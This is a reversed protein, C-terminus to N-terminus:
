NIYAYKIWREIEKMADKYTVRPKYLLNTCANQISIQKYNTLIEVASPSIVPKIRTIRYLLVMITGIRLATKKSLNKFNKPKDIMQALERFYEKFTISDDGDTINFIQGFANKNGVALYIADILNQIYTHHFIGNGDEILSFNDNKMSNLVRVVWVPSGPGFVNGPRIITIPVQQQNRKDLLVAESSAKTDSYYNFRHKVEYQIHSLYIFQSIGITKAYQLLRETGKVNVNYFAKKSGYDRVLAACHIIVDIDQPLNTFFSNESIDAQIYTVTKKHVTPKNKHYLGVVDKDNRKLRDILNSGIYGSSGTILYKM